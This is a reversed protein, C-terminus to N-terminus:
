NGKGGMESVGGAPASNGGFISKLSNDMRPRALGGLLAQRLFAIEEEAKRLRAELERNNKSLDRNKSTLNDCKENLSQLEKKKRDRNIKANIANVRSREKAPDAFPREQYRKTKGTSKFQATDFLLGCPLVCICSYGM